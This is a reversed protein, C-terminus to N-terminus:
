PTHEEHIYNSSNIQAGQMHSTHEEQKLGSNLAGSSSVPARENSLSISSKSTQHEKQFLEFTSSVM